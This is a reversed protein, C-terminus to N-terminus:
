RQQNLQVKKAQQSATLQYLTSSAQGQNSQISKKSAMFQKRATRNSQFVHSQKPSLSLLDKNSLNTMKSAHLNSPKNPALNSRYKPASKNETKSKQTIKLNKRHSASSSGSTEQNQDIYMPKGYRAKTDITPHHEAITKQLRLQEKSLTQAYQMHGNAAYQDMYVDSAVSDVTRKLTQEAPLTKFSNSLYEEIQAQTQPKSIRQISSINLHNSSSNYERSNNIVINNNPYGQNSIPSSNNPMTQVNDFM